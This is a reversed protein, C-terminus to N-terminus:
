LDSYKCEGRPTASATVTSQVARQQVAESVLEPTSIAKAAVCCLVVSSAVYSLQHRTHQHM